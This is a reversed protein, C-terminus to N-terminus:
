MGLIAMLHPPLALVLPHWLCCSSNQIKPRQQRRSQKTDKARVAATYQQGTSDLATWVWMMDGKHKEEGEERRRFGQEVRCAANKEWFRCRASWESSWSISFFSRDLLILPGQPDKCKSFALTSSSKITSSAYARESFYQMLELFFLEKKSLALPKPPVLWIKHAVVKCDSTGALNLVFFFVVRPRSQIDSISQLHM